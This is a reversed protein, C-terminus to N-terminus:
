RISAYRLAESTRLKVGGPAPRPGGLGGLGAVALGGKGAAEGGGGRGRGSGGGGGGGSGARPAYVKAERVHTDRGNQHNSLVALQLLYASLSRGGGPPRLPVVVWGCPEELEALAVEKLDRQSGGARVSLRAPTYSEDLRHDLSLAVKCLEM